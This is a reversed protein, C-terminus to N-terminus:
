YTLGFWGLATNGVVVILVLFGLFTHLNLFLGHTITGAIGTILTILTIVIGFVKHLWLNLWWLRKMYRGSAIQMFGLLLWGWAALSGNYEALDPM